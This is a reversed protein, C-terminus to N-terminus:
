IVCCLQPSNFGYLNFAPLTPSVNMQRALSKGVIGPPFKIAISKKPANDKAAKVDMTGRPSTITRLKMFEPISLFVAAVTLETM